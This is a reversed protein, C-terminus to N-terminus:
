DRGALLRALQQGLRPGRSNVAAVKGDKGLLIFAPISDIRYAVSMSNRNRPHHDAVVTWPPNEQVVFKQLDDLNEDVSIAIVEFGSEHYRQWNTLINPIEARCPGCWTAWFDILVVKGAFQSMDLPTGNITYGELHLRQGVIALLPDAGDSAAPPAEFNITIEDEGLRASIAFVRWQDKEQRLHLTTKHLVGASRVQVPIEAQTGDIKVRGKRISRASADPSPLRALPANAAKAAAQAAETLTAKAEDREKTRLDGYFREAIERVVDSASEAETASERALYKKVFAQDARSLRKLAVTIEQGDTRRLRVEDRTADILEAETKHKGTSDTWTRVEAAARVAVVLIVATAAIGAWRISSKMAMNVGQVVRIGDFRDFALSAHLIVGTRRFQM